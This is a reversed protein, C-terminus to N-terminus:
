AKVSGNRGLQALLEELHEEHHEYTGELSESLPYGDMWAYKESDLLDTEPTQESLEILRLFQERWDQYVSPWPKDRYTGDIWANSQDVDEDPDSDQTVPESGLDHWRPYNPETNRLAAEQRAITRQQWAWLHVIVDRISWNSPLSPGTIQEEELSDLLEEWRNFEDKLLALVQTKSDMM